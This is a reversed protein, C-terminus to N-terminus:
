IFSILKAFPGSKTENFIEKVTERESLRAEQEYYLERYAIGINKINVDPMQVGAKILMKFITVNTNGVYATKIINCIINEGNKNKQQLDSYPILFKVIKTLNNRIAYTLATDDITCYNFIDLQNREVIKDIIVKIFLEDMSYMAHMLTTIGYNDVIQLNTHPLLLQIIEVNYVVYMIAIKGEIDQQNVISSDLTILHKIIKINEHIVALTLSNHLKSNLEKMQKLMTDKDMSDFENMRNGIIISQLYNINSTKEFSGDVYYQANPEPIFNAIKFCSDAM